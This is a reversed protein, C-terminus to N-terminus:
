VAHCDPGKDFQDEDQVVALACRGLCHGVIPTGCGTGRLYARGLCAGLPSATALRLRRDEEM